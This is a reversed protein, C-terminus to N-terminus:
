LMWPFEERLDALVEPDMEREIRDMGGSDRIYLLVAERDTAGFIAWDQLEIRRRLWDTEEITWEVPAWDLYAGLVLRERESLEEVLEPHRSVLSALPGKGYGHAAAQWQLNLVQGRSAIYCKWMDHKTATDYTIEPPLLPAQTQELREFIWACDQYAPFEPDFAEPDKEPGPAAPEPELVPERTVPDRTLPERAEPRSEPGIEPAPAQPRPSLTLLALWVAVILIAIAIAFKM